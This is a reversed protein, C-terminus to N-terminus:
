LHQNNILDHNHYPEKIIPASSDTSFEQNNDVDFQFKAGADSKAGADFKAGADLGIPDGIPSFPPFYVAKFGSKSDPEKGFVYYAGAAIMFVNLPDTNSSLVGTRTDYDYYNNFLLAKQPKKLPM